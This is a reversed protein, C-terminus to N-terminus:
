PREVMSLVKSLRQETEPLIVRSVRDLFGTYHTILVMLAFSIVFAALSLSAELRLLYFILVKLVLLLGDAFRFRFVQPRSIDCRTSIERTIGLDDSLSPRDEILIESKLDAVPRFGACLCLLLM